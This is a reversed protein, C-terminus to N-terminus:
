CRLRNTSLDIQGFASPSDVSVTCSGGFMTLGIGGKAKELHYLRYREKPMRDEVYGPAHATSMMRNRFEVGKIKFPQLIPDTTKM